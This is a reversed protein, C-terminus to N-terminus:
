STLRSKEIFTVLQATSPGMLIIRAVDTHSKDLVQQKNVYHLYEGVQLGVAAAPGSPDVTHVYVPRSGRIVFGYGVPDSVVDISREVYKGDPDLLEEMTVKGISQQRNSQPPQITPPTITEESGSFMRVYGPDENGASQMHIYDDENEPPTNSGGSPMNESTNSSEYSGASFRNNDSDGISSNDDQSTSVVSSGRKKIKSGSKRKPPEDNKFRFFLYEDKFHHDDCVHRFVGADLLQKGLEVAEERTSDRICM